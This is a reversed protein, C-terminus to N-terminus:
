WFLSLSKTTPYKKSYHFGSSPQVIGKVLWAPRANSM